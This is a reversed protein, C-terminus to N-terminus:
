KPSKTPPLRGRSEHFGVDSTTTVLLEEQARNSLILRWRQLADPSSAGDDVQFRTKAFSHARVVVYDRTASTGDTAKLKLVEGAVTLQANPLIVGDTNGSNLFGISFTAVEGDVPAAKLVEDMAALCREVRVIIDEFARITGTLAEVMGDPNRRFAIELPEQLGVIVVPMLQLPSKKDWAKMTAINDRYFNIQQQYMQRMDSLAERVKRACQATVEHAEMEEKCSYGYKLSDWVDPRNLRFDEFSAKPIALKAGQAATDIQLDVASVKAKGLSQGLYFGTVASVPSSILAVLAGIIPGRLQGWTSKDEAM